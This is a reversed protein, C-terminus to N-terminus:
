SVRHRVRRFLFAPLPDVDYHLLRRMFRWSKRATYFLETAERTGVRALTCLRMSIRNKEATFAANTFAMQYVWM